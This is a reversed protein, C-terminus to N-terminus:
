NRVSCMLQFVQSSCQKGESAILVDTLLRYQKEYEEFPSTGELVVILRVKDSEEGDDLPVDRYSQSQSGPKTAELDELFLHFAMVSKNEDCIRQFWTQVQGMAKELADGVSSVTAVGM